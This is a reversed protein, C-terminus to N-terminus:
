AARDNPRSVYFYIAAVCCSWFLFASLLSLAFMAPAGGEPDATYIVKDPLFRGFRVVLFEGPYQYATAAFTWAASVVCVLLSTLLGVAASRLLRRLM